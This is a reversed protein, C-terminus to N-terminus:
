DKPLSISRSVTEARTKRTLCDRTVLTVHTLPARPPTFDHIRHGRGEALTCMLTAKPLAAFTEVVNSDTTTSEFQRDTQNPSGM